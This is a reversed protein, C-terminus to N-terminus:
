REAPSWTDMEWQSAITMIHQATLWASRRLAWRSARRKSTIRGRGEGKLASPLDPLSMPLLRDVEPISPSGAPGRFTPPSDPCRAHRKLESFAVHLPLQKLLFHALRPLQHISIEGSQNLIDQFSLCARATFRDRTSFRPIM